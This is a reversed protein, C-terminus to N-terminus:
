NIATTLLNISSNTINKGDILVNGSSSEVLRNICKLLTSKGSGSSGIIVLSEGKKVHLRINKVAEENRNKYTHSLNEIRIM